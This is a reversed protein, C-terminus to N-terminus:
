RAFHASLESRAAEVINLVALDKSQGFIDVVLTLVEIYEGTNGDEMAFQALELLATCLQEDHASSKEASLAVERLEVLQQRAPDRKGLEKLVLARRRKAEIVKNRIDQDDFNSFRAICAELDLIALEYNEQLSRALSRFVLASAVEEQIALLDDLAFHGLCETCTSVSEDLQGTVALSMSKLVYIGALHSRIEGDTANRFRLIGLDYVAQEEIHRDLEGLAMGKASFASSVTRGLDVDDSHGFTGIIEDAVAIVDHTRGEDRLSIIESWMINCLIKQIVLNKSSIFLGRGRVLMDSRSKTDGISAYLNASFRIAWAVHVELEESGDINKMSMAQELLALARAQYEEIDKLLLGGMVLSRLLDRRAGMDSVDSFDPLFGEFIQAAKEHELLEFYSSALIRRSNIRTADSFQCLDEGFSNELNAFEVVVENWQDNTNLCFLIGIAARQSLVLGEDSSIESSITLAARCSEIEITKEGLSQAAAVRLLNAKAFQLAHHGDFKGFLNDFETLVSSHRGMNILLGLKSLAAEYVIHQDVSDGLEVFKNYEELAIQYDKNQTRVQMLLLQVAAKEGVAGAAALAKHALYLAAAREENNDSSAAKTAGDLLDVFTVTKTAPVIVSNRVDPLTASEPSSGSHQNLWSALHRELIRDFDAHGDFTQYLYKKESEIKKKFNLVKLLNEGPDSIQSASVNKFFLCINLMRAALYLKEAEFFEEETGSSYTGTAMGWRDHFVFVAYDCSRLESNILEQPRGSGGLTEEWGVPRFYVGRSMAHTENFQEIRLRFARREESLGGPSGIFVDYKALSKPM